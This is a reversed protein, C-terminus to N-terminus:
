IVIVKEFKYVEKWKFDCKSCRAYQIYYKRNDKFESGNKYLFKEEGCKPCKHLPTSM